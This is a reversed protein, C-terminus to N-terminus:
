EAGKENVDRVSEAAFIARIFARFLNDNPELVKFGAVLMSRLRTAASSAQVASGAALGVPGAAQLGAAGLLLKMALGVDSRGAAVKVFKRANLLQGYEKLFQELGKGGVTLGSQAAADDLLSKMAAGAEHAVDDVVKIGTTAYAKDWLSRKFKNIQSLTIEAQGPYSSKLNRIIKDIEDSAEIFEATGRFPEKVTELQAVIDDIKATGKSSELSKQLINEFDDVRSNIKSLRSEGSGVIPNNALYSTADDIKGQLNARQTPTLKLNSKELSKRIAENSTKLIGGAVSFAGSLLAATKGEKIGKEIDGTQVARKIGIDAGEGIARVAIPPAAAIAKAALGATKATLGYGQLTKQLRPVNVAAKAGIKAGIKTAGVASGVPVFLEALQEAFFGAKQAAGVPRVDRVAVDITRTVKGLKGPLEPVGAQTDLPEKGVAQLAKNVGVDVLGLAGQVTSKVGKLAGVGVDGLAGGVSELASFGARAARPLVGEETAGEGQGSTAKLRESLSERKVLNDLQRQRIPSLGSKQENALRDLERKREESIAM